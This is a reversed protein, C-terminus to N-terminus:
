LAVGCAALVVRRLGHGAPAPAGRWADLVAALGQLWAWTVALGLAALCLRTLAREPAGSGDPQGSAARALVAAVGWLAATLGSAVVLCRPRSAAMVVYM